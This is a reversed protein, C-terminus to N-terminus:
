DPGKPTMGLYPWFYSITGIREAAGLGAEAPQKVGARTWNMRSRVCSPIVSYRLRGTADALDDLTGRLDRPAEHTELIRLASLTM